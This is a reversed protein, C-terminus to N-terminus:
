RTVAGLVVKDLRFSYAVNLAILMVPIMATMIGMQIEVLSAWTAGALLLYVFSKETVRFAAAVGMFFGEVMGMWMLPYWWCELEAFTCPVVVTTSGTAAVKTYTDDLEVCTGSACSTVTRTTTQTSDWQFGIPLTFTILCLGTVQVNYLKGDGVVSTPSPNCNSVTITQVSTGGDATFKVPQISCLPTNATHNGCIEFIYENNNAFGNKNQNFISALTEAISVFGDKAQALIRNLISASPSKIIYTENFNAGGSTGSLGGPSGFETFGQTFSAHSASWRKSGNVADKFGSVFQFWRNYDVFGSCTSAGGGNSLSITCISQYPRGTTSDVAGLITFPGYNADWTSPTGPIMRWTQQLELYNTVVYAPCASGVCNQSNSTLGGSFVYQSNLGAAPEAIKTTNGTMHACSIGCFLTITHAGGDCLVTNGGLITASGATVSVTLTAAPASNDMTCTVTFTTNAAFVPLPILQLFSLGLIAAIVLRKINRWM